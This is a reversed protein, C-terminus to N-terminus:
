TLKLVVKEIYKTFYSICEVLLHAKLKLNLSVKFIHPSNCTLALVFNSMGQPNDSPINSKEPRPLILITAM